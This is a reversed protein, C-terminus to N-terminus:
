PLAEVKPAHKELYQLASAVWLRDDKFYGLGLNCRRCILERVRGTQHDHDVVLGAYSRGGLPGHRRCIACRGRQRAYMRLIENHAVGYRAAFKEVRNTERRNPNHHYAAREYARVEDGRLQRRRQRKRRAAARVYEPNRLEWARRSARVRDPHHRFYTRNYEASKTM